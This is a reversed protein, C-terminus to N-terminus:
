AHEHAYPVAQRPGTVSLESGVDWTLRVRDTGLREIAPAAPTPAEGEPLLELGVGLVIEALEQFQFVQKKGHYCVADAAVMPLEEQTGKELKWAFEKEGFVGAVPHVIARYGGASLEFNGGELKRGKAGQGTLECRLRFDEAEFRGAVAPRDIHDHWDGKDTLLTAQLLLRPGRQVTTFYASAFDQGDRLFRVRLMVAPDEETRWYGLVARRQYWVNDHNVSGLCADGGFWTTGCVSNAEEAQVVYRHHTELEASPLAKFRPALDAPCPLPKLYDLLSGPSADRPIEGRGRIDASTTDRLQRVLDPELWNHYARSVPGVFQGTAPHFHEALEHWLGRCLGQLATRAPQDRLYLLGWEAWSKSFWTYTPSNYEQFGGTARYHQLMDQLRQRGYGLLRPDNLLEGVATALVGGSLCINSYSPTVNRRFISWAAHGAAERLANILAYPLLKGHAHLLHLVQSGIFDAFNFDVAPMAALPEEVLMPWVGYTRSTPVKDQFGLVVEVIRRARNLHREPGHRFVNIAYTMSDSLSHVPTGLPLGIHYHRVQHERRLLGLVEDFQRDCQDLYDAITM